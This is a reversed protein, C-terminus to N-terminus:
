WGPPQGYALSAPYSQPNTRQVIGSCFLPHCVGLRLTAACLLTQEQVRQVEQGQLQERPSAQESKQQEHMERLSM